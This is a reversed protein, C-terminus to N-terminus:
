NEKRFLVVLEGKIKKKSLVEKWESIKMLKREEFIKTLERTIVVQIDGFINEMSELTKAIRFASEYFVITENLNAKKVEEWIKEQKGKKRPLFGLFLFKDASYGSISLAVIAACAGPLSEVAIGNELCKNVLKFGPDSITPTGANSVLGVSMGEEMLRVLQESREEANHDFYSILRPFIKNEGLFQAFEQKYFNLLQLTKRTDECALVEVEFLKELARLTIDRRNGIPTAILYLSM